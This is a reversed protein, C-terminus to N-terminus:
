SVLNLVLQITANLIDQHGLPKIQDLWITNWIFNVVLACVVAVKLQNDIQKFREPLM